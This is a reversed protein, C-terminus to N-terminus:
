KKNFKKIEKKSYKLSIEEANKYNIEYGIFNAIELITEISKKEINEYRFFKVYDRNYTKYVKEYQLLDKAAKLATDFDTKMFEKFSICVDRPDRITTLIKSRPLNPNLIRHIKFVYKNSDNQDTLSQNEFIEFFKQSTKPIKLPLVNIKSFKLIERTVNYLWMSGTRPTTSIWLSNINMVIKIM